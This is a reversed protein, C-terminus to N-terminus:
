GNVRIIATLQEIHQDVAKLLSARGEAAGGDNYATSGELLTKARQFLPLAQKAAAATNKQAITRAQEYTGYGELYNAMGRTKATTAGNRATEYYMFAQDYRKAKQHNDFGMGIIRQAIQDQQADTIENRARGQKAAAMAEAVRNLDLLMLARRQAVPFSPAIQSLRDLAALSEELRNATRLQEAYTSWTLSDAAPNDTARKGWTLAEQTNGVGAHAVMLNRMTVIDISDPKAMTLFTYHQVAKRFMEKAPEPVTGAPAGVMLKSAAGMAFHAAYERLAVNTTDKSENNEIINLAGRFDGEKAAKSAISLRVNADGPNLELYEKWYRDSLEINGAASAEIAASMMADQNIPDIELIRQYTALAEQHRELARYAGGIGYLAHTSKPNLEVAKNCNTLADQWQSSNLYDDCFALVRVMDNYAGFAKTIQEAVAADSTYPFPPVDYSSGDPNYFQANVQGSADVTGCMVLKADVHSMLQRYKLCDMDAEKVGLKKVAAKVEKDPIAIHTSMQDISRRVQDAAKAGSKSGQLAPVLVRFRGGAQAQVPALLASAAIGALVLGLVTRMRPRYFEAKM